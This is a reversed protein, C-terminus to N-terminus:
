EFCLKNILAALQRTDTNSHSLEQPSYTNSFELKLLHLGPGLPINVSITQEEFQPKIPLVAVKKNNSYISVENKGLSKGAFLLTHLTTKKELKIFMLAKTGIIWRTNDERPGWGSALYKQHYPKSIDLCTFNRDQSARHFYSFNKDKLMLTFGLSNLMNKLKAAYYYETNVVIHEIDLFDISEIAGAQDITHEELAGFKDFMSAHEPIEDVLTGIYGLFPDNRYYEFKSENIRGTHHGLIPKHHYLPGVQYFLSDLNGFYQLGDRVGFPIELVTSSRDDRLVSQYIDLPIDNPAAPTHVYSQDAFMIVLLISAALLKTKNKKYRTLWWDIIHASMISLAFISLIMIRGPSRLNEFFPLNTLLYYPLIIPLENSAIHLKPGLALIAAAFGVIVHPLIRQQISTSIKKGYVFFLLISGLILIGPYVFSEFRTVFFPNIRYIKDAIPQFFPNWQSPIFFGTLSGSFELVGSNSGEPLGYTEVIEKVRAIWPILLVIAVLAGTIFFRIHKKITDMCQRGFLIIGAVCYLFIGLVIFMTYNLNSLVALAGTVGMAVAYKLKDTPNSFIIGHISIGLLPFLFINNFTPQSGMRAALYPTFGFSLAVIGASIRSIRMRRLFLYMLIQAIVILGAAIVSISQHISLFPRLFLFYFGNIPALDQIAYDAGFPYFRLENIAFPNKGNLINQYLTEASNHLLLLEAHISLDKSDDHIVQQWLPLNLAINSVFVLVLFVITIRHKKQIFLHM